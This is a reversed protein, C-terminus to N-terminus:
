FIFDNPVEQNILRYYEIIDDKNAKCGSLYLKYLLCFLLSFNNEKINIGEIIIEIYTSKSESLSSYVYRAHLRELPIPTSNDIINYEEKDIIVSPVTGFLSNSTLEAFVSKKFYDNYFDEILSKIVLNIYFSKNLRNESYFKLNEMDKNYYKGQYEFKQVNTIIFNHRKDRNLIITRNEKKFNIIVNKENDETILYNREKKIFTIIIEDSKNPELINLSSINLLIWGEKEEANILDETNMYKNTVITQYEIDNLYEDKNNM